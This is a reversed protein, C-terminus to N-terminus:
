SATSRCVSECLGSLLAAVPRHLVRVVAGIGAKHAGLTAYGRLWVGDPDSLNRSACVSHAPQM